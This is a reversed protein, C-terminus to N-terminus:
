GADRAAHRERAAAVAARVQEPATGGKGNRAAVSGELTLVRYVDEDIRACFGKLTELPLGDLSADNELAHSVVRGVVEHADRFPMGKNVLYDALDTATAYGDAAARAMRGRDFVADGLMAALVELCDGVTDVTDFLPEKDEQNDRNYALPQGKMLMLLAVLNGTVRGSKGRILEAADPNKKQPMISSGTCFGDGLDVFGFPACAWLVLDEAIRSLHVSLLACASIFEIVFDRDSVSDLSNNSVGDFGLLRAALARDVPYAAGALAAAGLPSVNLRARCDRLRGADRDLMEHWAMLHHGCTVPQASQLHTLGPMISDAEREALDLLVEQLRRIRRSVRDAADRAFLRLDTAVQDNRSRATHLKKGVDGILETLRAEINTHVDELDQRWPFEGRAIEKGIRDLGDLIRDCEDRTLVGAAALTKAHARSGELDERYLRRDYHESASFREMLRATRREFRGGWLKKDPKRGSM